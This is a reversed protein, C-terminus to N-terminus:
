DGRKDKLYVRVADAIQWVGLAAAFMFCAAALVALHVGTIVGASLSVLAAGIGALILVAAFLSGFM